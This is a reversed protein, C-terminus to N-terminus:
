RLLASPQGMLLTRKLDDVLTEWSLFYDVSSPFRCELHAYDSAYTLVGPGLHDIVTQIMDEGDAMEVSSFFRGGTLQEGPSRHSQGSFRRSNAIRVDCATGALTM